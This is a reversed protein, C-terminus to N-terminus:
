AYPWQLTRSPPQKKHTLYGQLAYLQPKTTLRRARCIGLSQMQRAIRGVGLGVGEPRPAQDQRALASAEVEDFGKM